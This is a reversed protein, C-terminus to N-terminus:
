TINISHIFVCICTHFAKRYVCVCTWRNELCSLVLRMLVNTVLPNVNNSKYIVRITVSYFFSVVKDPKTAEM